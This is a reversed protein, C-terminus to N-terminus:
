GPVLGIVFQPFPFDRFHFLEECNECQRCKGKGASGDSGRLFHFVGHDAASRHVRGLVDDVVGDIGLIVRREDSGDFGGAEHVREFGSAWERDESWRIVGECFKGGAGHVREELGFVLVGERFHEGIVNDCATEGGLIEFFGNLSTVAGGFELSDAASLKEDHSVAFIADGDLVFLATNRVDGNGVDELGVTDNM